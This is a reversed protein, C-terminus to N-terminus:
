YFNSLTHFFRMMKSKSLIDPFISFDLCFKSFGEFNMLGKNNAYFAFYPLLTKHVSSLVEVMQEDKLIEM